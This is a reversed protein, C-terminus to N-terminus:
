PADGALPAVRRGAGRVALVGLALLLFGLGPTLPLGAYTTVRSCPFGGMGTAALVLFGCGAGIVGLVSLATWWVSSGPRTGARELWPLPRHELPVAVSVLVVVM